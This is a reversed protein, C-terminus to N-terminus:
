PSKRPAITSQTSLSRVMMSPMFVKSDLQCHGTMAAISLSSAISCSLAARIVGSM